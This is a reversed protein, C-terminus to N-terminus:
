GRPISNFMSTFAAGLQTEFNTGVAVIAAVVVAGLVAYEVATLGRQDRRLKAILSALKKM